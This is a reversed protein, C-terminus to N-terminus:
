RSTRIYLRTVTIVMFRKTESRYVPAIEWDNQVVNNWQNNNFIVLAVRNIAPIRIVIIKVLM